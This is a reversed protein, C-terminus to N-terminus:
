KVYIGPVISSIDDDYMAEAHIAPIYYKGEYAVTVDFEFRKTSSSYIDLYTYINDDRIDQYTFTSNIDSAKSLRDNIFEWTTPIPITVAVNNVTKNTNNKLEVIIKFTDGKKLDMPNIKKGNDDRYTVTLKLGDSKAVETGPISRGSASVTGFIVGSSNNSIKVEQSAKDNSVLEVLATKKEITGNIAHGNAEVTYENSSSKMENYYPLLTFLAWATEHTSLSKDSNLYDCISKAYKAAMTKNDVYCCCMLGISQNKISSGFSDDMNRFFTDNYKLGKVISKSTDQRGCIAYASALLMKSVDSDLSDKIRNMSGIDPRGALALVFLKYAQTDASDSSSQSVTGYNQASEALWNILPNYITDPVKYGRSKALTLFHAGYTSGWVHPSSGGSWYSFAGNSLQYQPYREIVSNVNKIVKESDQLSLKVFDSIFLQPFGGSTIQEICGHPYQILYNLRNNFNLLPMTTLEATLKTTGAESPSDVSVTTSSKGKVVFDKRYTVPIGRSEVVVEQEVTKKIDGSVSKFTFKIKGESAKETSIDYYVIENSNAQVSIEKTNVQRVVGSTTMNVSVKQIKDTGNFITVPIKVNENLGLTRPVEPLIMLDSKVPVNKEAVGYAGQNGAVVMVRVAGIYNPMDFITAQKEGAALTFPGFYKVVPTFRNSTKDSNDSVDESGGIALITELKGSYANMVYKYLDWSQLLSAEKKYFENRINPARYGTLGLLGEDVVALTYTMPKGNAESVSITTKSLPEFKKETTIVPKLLTEPNDVMIPTVGYLRIPLSNKTQMHPQLLTIHVYVNPSMTDKLPLEYTTTGDTTEIWQQGIITGAKEITALAREGKTSAFTIKATDGVKYDKKDASITLMSTSGSGEDLARGAWGPWDIYVVKGTSHGNYGDSVQFLYRGWSPYKVEFNFKGVGNTINVTGQDIVSYSDSGVYTAASYADKEWWWKWSLKYIKYDLVASSIPKGEPDLLVVDATHVIDTLLMGRAEDGKPLKLGVYRSYPSYDFSTSSTSANGTPEFIRSIFHAKLKGPLSNGANLEATFDVKSDKGLQGDFIRSKSGDVYGNPNTFIYDTYGEFSTNAESFSVTVDADYNPIEAGHLWAGSLTFNNTDATLYKKDTKLEISLHNPIVTEIRLTKSWENGGITVKATWIGTISDPLTKTVIPYFGNVSDTLKVNEVEHGLPDTLTFIVPINQPLSKKLDQLVFTLYIDNGPRWVGREGYIFGRVGNESIVGGTEFHSTSLATGTDVKLYSFQTGNTATVMFINAANDFIARGAKDTKAEGIKGGVFNYAKVTLNALPETTKLDAANVFLKKNTGLKAMLGIDSVFINRNIICSSNNEPMYFAPHCPDNRYYWYDDQHYYYEESYDWSSSERPKEYTGLTDAPMELDDFNRHSNNCVYKINKKRFSVRLQIMGGPYKKLVESLDIGRSIFKNQMSPNWDFSLNKEWVPEGVRYLENNGDYDNVQFFQNMNADYVVFAQVLVGSLNKTMIPVVSGQTTPLINGSTMFKVEPLDWNSSLYVDTNAALLLGDSSKVGELISVSSIDEFNNDSYITLVNSNIKPTVKSFIRNNDTNYFKIYEVIDQAKDLAKSFSITIINKNSTNIDLVSFASSIGPITFNKKGAYHKREFSNLGLNKGKYSIKFKKDKKGIVIDSITFDWECLEKVTSEAAFVVPLKSMGLKAAICKAIVDKSVPIDTKIKGNISFADEDDNLLLDDFTVEFSGGTVVFPHSYVPNAENVGLLKNVDVNLVLKSNPKYPKEPKFTVTNENVLVFSGTQRPEFTVAQAIQSETCAVEKFFSITVNSFRDIYTPSVAQVYEDNEINYDVSLKSDTKKSCGFFLVIFSIFLSLIFKRNMMNKM